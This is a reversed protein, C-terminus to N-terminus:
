ESGAGSPGPQVGPEDPVFEGCERCRLEKNLGRPVGAGAFLLALIATVLRKGHNRSAYLLDQGGCFPCARPAMSAGIDHDGPSLGLIEKALEEQAVPVDIRIGGMINSLIPDLRIMNADRVVAAVGGAELRMRILEAEVVGDARSVTTWEAM